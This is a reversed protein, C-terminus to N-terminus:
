NATRRQRNLTTLWFRTVSKVMRVFQELDIPKTVFCNAHLDYTKVIDEIEQSGTLIVVPIDKLAGDAKIEALVQLGGMRPMDLDLLILDPRPAQGYRGKRRLFAIAEVGDSATHLSNQMEGDKLAEVTLRVDGPNDDVVLIDASRRAPRSIM